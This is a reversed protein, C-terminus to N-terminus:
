VGTLTPPVLNGFTGGIDNGQGQVEVPVWPTINSAVWTFQDEITLDETSIGQGHNLFEVGYIAMSMAQGIENRGTVTVDFPPIQDPYHPSSLTMGVASGNGFNNVVGALRKGQIANGNNDVSSGLYANEIDNGYDKRAYKTEKMLDYLADRDYVVFVMSGAIGRKGRSFSLPNPAGLVYIPAKERTVSFSIGQCNGLLYTGVILNIDSGGMSTYSRAVDSVVGNMGIGGFNSTGM